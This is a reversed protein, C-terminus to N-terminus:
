HSTVLDTYTLVILAQSHLIFGAIEGITPRDNACKPFRNHYKLEIESMHSLVMPSLVPIQKQKLYITMASAKPCM